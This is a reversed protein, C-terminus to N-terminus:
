KGLDRLLVMIDKCATQLLESSAAVGTKDGDLVKVALKSAVAHLNQNAEHLQKLLVKREANSEQEDMQLIWRGLETDDAEALIEPDLNYGLTGEIFRNLRAKWNAHAHMVEALSMVSKDTYESAFFTSKKFLNSFFGM